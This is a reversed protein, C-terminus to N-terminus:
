LSFVYCGRNVQTVESWGPYSLLSGPGVALCGVSFPKSAACEAPLPSLEPFFDFPHAWTMGRANHTAEQLVDIFLFFIHVHLPPCCCITDSFSCLRSQEHRMCKAACVEHRFMLPFCIRYCRCCCCCLCATALARPLLRLPPGVDHGACQPYGGTPHTNSCCVAAALQTLTVLVVFCISIQDHWGRRTPDTAVQAASLV